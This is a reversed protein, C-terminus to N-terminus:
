ALSEIMRLGYAIKLRYPLREGRGFEPSPLGPPMVDRTELALVESTVMM